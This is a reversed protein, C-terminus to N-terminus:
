NMEAISPRERYQDQGQGLKNAFSYLPYIVDARVRKGIQPIGPDGASSTRCEEKALLVSKRIVQEVETNRRKLHKQRRACAYM